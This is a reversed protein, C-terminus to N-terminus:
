TQAWRCEDCVHDDPKIKRKGDAPDIFTTGDGYVENHPHMKARLIGLQVRRPLKTMKKDMCHVGEFERAMKKGRTIEPHDCVALSFAGCNATCSWGVKGGGLGQPSGLKIGAGCAPCKTPIKRPETEDDM